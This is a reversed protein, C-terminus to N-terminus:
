KLIRCKQGPTPIDTFTTNGNQDTCFYIVGEKKGPFDPIQHPKDGDRYNVPPLTLIKENDTLPNFTNQGIELCKDQHNSKRKPSNSNIQGDYPPAILKKNLKDGKPIVTTLGLSNHNILSILNKAEVWGGDHEDQWTRGYSNQIKYQLNCESKNCIYRQGVITTSHYTCKDNIDKSDCFSIEVPHNASLSQFLHNRFGQHTPTENLKPYLITEYQPYEIQNSLCSNPVLIQYRFEQWSLKNVESIIKMLDEFNHNVGLGTMETAWCEKSEESSNNKLMRWAYHFYDYEGRDGDPTLIKNREELHEPYLNTWLEYPACNERAMMRGRTLFNNLITRPQGGISIKNENYTNFKSLHLVSGRDQYCQDPNSSKSCRLHELLLSASHAYCLGYNGQDLVPPLNSVEIRGYDCIPLAKKSSKTLYPNIAICTNISFITLLFLFSWNKM